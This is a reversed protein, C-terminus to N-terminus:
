TQAEDPEEKGAGALSDRKQIARQHLREAFKMYQEYDVLIDATQIVMAQAHGLDDIPDLDRDSRLMAQKLDCMAGM